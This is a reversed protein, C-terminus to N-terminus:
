ELGCVGYRSGFLLFFGKLLLLYNLFMVFMLGFRLLVCLCVIGLMVFRCLYLESYLVFMSMVFLVVLCSRLWVFFRFRSVLVVIVMVVFWLLFRLLCLSKKM